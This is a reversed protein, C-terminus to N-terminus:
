EVPEAEAPPQPKDRRGGWMLVWDVPDGQAALWEGLVSRVLGSINAGRQAAQRNLAEHVEETLVLTVRKKTAM